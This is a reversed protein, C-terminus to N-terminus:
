SNEELNVKQFMAWYEILVSLKRSIENLVVVSDTEHTLDPAQIPMRNGTDVLVAEGDAGSAMKYVPVHVGDVVDTKVQVATSDTDPKVGINDTM